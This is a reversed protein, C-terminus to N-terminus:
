HATTEKAPTAAHRKAWAQAEGAYARWEPPSGADQVLWVVALGRGRDIAMNTAFAGGHGCTGDAGVTFGLGYSEKVTEPTQRKTMEAVAAESLIRHGEFTGGGLVLRCFRGCDDATSFLGGGPMPYRSPGDLPYKLQPIRVPTIGSKDEKARYATALRAGQAATPHFTTDLMGLPAFLREQMFREYPMGSVVEIIRGATNIGANSYLYVTGPDSKLPLTPYSRAVTELPAVDLTPEEVPSKFPLGSMHSLADRITIERSPRTLELRESTRAREVWLERFEPLYKAVSDDLCVRGEDVLIMLAAATMPKTMSAIWFTADKAMPRQAELDASGVAEILVPGNVDTVLVIAGALHKQEIAPGLIAELGEVAREAQAHAQAAFAAVLILISLILRAVATPTPTSTTKM